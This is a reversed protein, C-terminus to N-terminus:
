RVPVQYGSCFCFPRQRILVRVLNDTQRINPFCHVHNSLVAMTVQMNAIAYYGFMEMM